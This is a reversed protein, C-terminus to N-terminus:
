SFLNIGLDVDVDDDDDNKLGKDQYNDDNKLEKLLDLKLKNLEQQTDDKNTKLEKLLAIKLENLEQQSVATNKDENNIKLEELLAKKMEPFDNTKWLNKNMLRKIEERTEDTNAYYWMVEPFWAEWRRQNPLLYFLEIEALIKAKQIIYSVRDNDKDIAMNLLGILLNMLYVVILLSFLVILIVLSPNKIYPWNSLAGSDGTLFKYTAFLATGFNTFMNTNENPPQIIYQNPDMTGDDLIKSYAPALNWPNNPDNNNTRQDLSFEFRPLLLIFFAHAFSIIIIFLLVLFYIIQEAVSIMIAFYVGFREFARFFLLFKVDLFLCSFSLLPIIRDMDNTRLWYISTYMPLLYAIIDFINWYDKIWNIPGYIFQRIEFSLHISGLIISAIFLQKRTDEEIYKQPITAAFTFCGLLAMFSIWIITYYYKGYTNWKFNILAEGNWTKYIDGNISKVFPSSQPRVLESIWSYNKPYNVYKVYPSMFTITPTPTPTSVYELIFQCTGILPFSVLESMYGDSIVFPNSPKQYLDVYKLWLISSTLNTIQLNQSYLHLSNNQHTINYSHSDIIMCTELSYKLIYERYYENFLPITSTIISLYTKNNQFDEQFYYVCKKYVRDILELNHKNIAFSLVEVGYKLLSEKNDIIEKNSIILIDNNKFLKKEYLYFRENGKLKFEDIRTKVLKWEDDMEDSKKFVEIKIKFNEIAMIKWKISNNGKIFTTHGDIDDKQGQLFENMENIYLNFLDVNLHEQTKVSIFIKSLKIKWFYGNLIFNQDNKKWYDLMISSCIKCSTYFDIYNFNQVKIQEKTDGPTGIEKETEQQIELTKTKPNKEINIDLEILVKNVDLTIIPIELEISYIIIKDKIKLCIYKNNSSIRVDKLKIKEKNGFIRISKETLLDWEHIYTNSFLLYLKDDKSISIVEYGNPIDYIGKCKWKNNKTQTSYTLIINKPDVYYIRQLNNGNLIFENKLNFCCYQSNFYFPAFDLEIKQGYNKMNIVEIISNEKNDKRYIYALKKDDSVCIKRVDIEHDIIHHYDDPKLQFEDMDKVYVVNWGIFSKDEESFTVLYTENPSIEIMTIPKGNHPKDNQPKDDNKIINQEIDIKDDEDIKVSIDGSQSM